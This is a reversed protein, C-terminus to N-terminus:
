VLLATKYSVGQLDQIKHIVEELRHKPIGIKLEVFLQAVQEVVSCNYQKVIMMVENMQQYDFNLVYNVEVAKQIIPSLQLALSTTTKYANILGPVGLLTGGFSRVVVVMINTLQKSDIQGLIPRGASGSPEGDDSVRFTAGDVGIRYALCHHVAKPHEKKLNALQKKCAEISLVPFSYALFKSGRDKFEAVAPQEITNYFFPDM